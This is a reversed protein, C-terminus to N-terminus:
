PQEGTLACYHGEYQFIKIYQRKKYTFFGTPQGLKIWTKQTFKIGEYEQGNFTFKRMKKVDMIQKSTDLITYGEQKLQKKVTKTDAHTLTSIVNIDSPTLQQKKTTM